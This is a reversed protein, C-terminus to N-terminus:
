EQVVRAHLEDSLFKMAKNRMIARHHRQIQGPLWAVMLDPYYRGLTKLGWGVGKVADMEWETFMPELLALLSSAQPTHAADGRSRKAWFHVAVGVTRRVWRNSDDRWPQLLILADEFHTVLGPGPIREGFIDAGYWVDAAIIYDRSRAFAGPLDRESQANLAGGIVVWGGMTKDAAIRGLFPNTTEIPGTGFTKGIRELIPFPTKGALVPALLAYAAEIEGAQVLPSIQEGLQIADKTKM